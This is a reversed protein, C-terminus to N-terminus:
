KERLKRIYNVLKWRQAKTFSREYPLMQGKGKSIKWFLAGDSQTQVISGTHDAPKKKLNASAPGDGKGTKGHCSWCSSEYIKKGERYALTDWRYPNKLTDAYVPAKWVETEQVPYFALVCFLAMTSVVALSSRKM